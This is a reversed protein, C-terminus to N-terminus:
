IFIEIDADVRLESVLQSVLEQSKQQILMQEVQLYVESLEPSEQGETLGSYLQAVEEESVEISDIDIEQELYTMLILESRIQEELDAQTINEFSLAEQFDEESEFQSKIIEIQARVDQDSVNINVNTAAQSLLVQGILSDIAQENIQRQGEADLTNFDIGREATLQLRVAEFDNRTISEDNVVAVVESDNEQDHGTNIGSLDRNSLIAYGVFGVVLLVVVSLVLNKM